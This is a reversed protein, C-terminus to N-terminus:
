NLEDHIENQVAKGSPSYISQEEFYGQVHKNILLNGSNSM